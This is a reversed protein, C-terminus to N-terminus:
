DQKVLGQYEKHRRLWIAAYGCIPVIKLEKEQAMKAIEEMLRGAAGSGRLEVPSEVYDIYLIKGEFHYNAFVIQGDVEIEYRSLTHNNKM